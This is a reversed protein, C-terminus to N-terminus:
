GCRGPRGPAGERGCITNREHDKANYMVCRRVILPSAWTARRDLAGAPPRKDPVRAFEDASRPTV